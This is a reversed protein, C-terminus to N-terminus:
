IVLISNTLQWIKLQGIPRQKQIVSNQLHGFFRVSRNSWVSHGPRGPPIRKPGWSTCISEPDFHSPSRFRTWISKLGFRLSCGNRHLDFNFVLWKLWGNWDVPNAQNRALWALVFSAYTVKERSRIAPVLSSVCWLCITSCRKHSEEHAMVFDM